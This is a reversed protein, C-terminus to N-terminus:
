DWYESGADLETEFEAVLPPGDYKPFAVTAVADRICEKLQASKDYRRPLQANVAFPEGKPNLKVAIEMDGRLQTESKIKKSEKHQAVCVDLADFSQNFALQVDYDDPRESGYADLDLVIDANPDFSAVAAKVLRATRRGKTPEAKKCGAVAMLAAMAAVGFSQIYARLKSRM